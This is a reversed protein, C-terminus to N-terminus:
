RGPGSEDGPGKKQYYDRMQAGTIFALVLEVEGSYLWTGDPANVQWGGRTPVVTWGIRDATSHLITERSARM